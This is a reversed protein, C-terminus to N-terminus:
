INVLKREQSLATSFGRALYRYACYASGSVSEEWEKRGVDVLEATVERTDHIDEIQKWSLVELLHQCTM